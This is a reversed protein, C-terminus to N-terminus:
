QSSQVAVTLNEYIRITHDIIFETFQLPTEPSKGLALVLQNKLYDSYPVENHIIRNRLKYITEADVEAGIIELLTTTPLAAFM